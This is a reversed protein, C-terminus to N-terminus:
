NLSETSLLDAKYYTHDNKREPLTTDKGDLQGLHFPEIHLRCQSATEPLSLEVVDSQIKNSAPLFADRYVWLM